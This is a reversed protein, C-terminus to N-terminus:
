KEIIPNKVSGWVAFSIFVLGIGGIVLEPLEINLVKLFMVMALSFIAWHAGADLFRYKVLTNNRVMYLTFTRVWIAGIGLGIMIIIINNTLAFAGIVGDLSFSADLVELYMFSVFAAMGTQTVVKAQRAINRDNLKTMAVAVGHLLLYVGAGAVMAWAVEIRENQTVLALTIASVFAIAFPRIWWTNSVKQLPAELSKIWLHERGRELFFFLAVMFLFMGGFGNIVPSIDHLLKGYEEPRDIALRLVEGGGQGTVASVLVIPLAFRVAFVAILIGVTLFILQWKKSMKVLVRSNVVANDASLTIELLSLIITTTLALTGLKWGVFVWLGLTILLEPWYHKLLNKM